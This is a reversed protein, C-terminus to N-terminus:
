SMKGLHMKLMEGAADIEDDLVSTYIKLTMMPDSHGMLRQATTVHIGQTKLLYAYTRRFSHVTVDHLSAAKRIAKYTLPFEAFYGLYPIRRVSTKSKCPGYFSRNVWVSGDHIDEQTLVTAESWRLGHAALFRIQNNYRGWDLADVENWTLFKREKQQIPATRLGITPNNKTINYIAAERFISKAVMLTHRATQPPLVLLARQLEASDVKDVAMHGIAAQLNHRYFHKYDYLTKARISLLTWVQDVWEDVTM